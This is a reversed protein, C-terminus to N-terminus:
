KKESSGKQQLQQTMELSIASREVKISTGPSIEVELTNDENIKAIIGHIGAVTVIKLGKELKALFEKQKKMQISRPRIMVFYMVVLLLGLFIFQAAGGGPNKGDPAVMLSLMFVTHLM